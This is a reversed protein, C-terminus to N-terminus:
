RVQFWRFGRPAVETIEVGEVRANPPGSSLFDIVQQVADPAGELHAEVSGDRLNAVWGAVGRREAEARTSDRFFVGQVHGRVIARRAVCEVHNRPGPHSGM